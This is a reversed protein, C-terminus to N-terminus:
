RRWPQPRAADHLERLTEGARWTGSGAMRVAHALSPRAPADVEVVSAPVLAGGARAFLRATWENGAYPGYRRPDAPPMGAVLRRDVLLSLVATHRLPVRRKGAAALVEEVDDGAFRGLLRDVAVGSRDVPLSAACVDAHELLKALTDDSAQATVALLWLLETGAQQAAHPLGALTATVAAPPAVPPPASGVIVTTVRSVGAGAAPRRPRRAM